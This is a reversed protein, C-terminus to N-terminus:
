LVFGITQLSQIGYSILDTSVDDIKQHENNNCVSMIVLNPYYDEM